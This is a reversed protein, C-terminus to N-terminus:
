YNFVYLAPALATGEQGTLTKLKDKEVTDQILKRTKDLLKVVIEPRSPNSQAREKCNGIL